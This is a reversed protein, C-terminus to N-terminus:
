TRRHSANQEFNYGQNIWQVHLPDENMKVAYKKKHFYTVIQGNM